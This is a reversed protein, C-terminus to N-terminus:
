SRQELDAVLHRHDDLGDLVALRDTPEQGDDQGAALLQDGRRRGRELTSGQPGLESRPWYPRCFSAGVYRASGEARKESVDEPENRRRCCKSVRRGGAPSSRRSSSKPCDSPACIRPSRRMTTISRFSNWTSPAMSRSCCTGCVRREMTKRGVSRESM